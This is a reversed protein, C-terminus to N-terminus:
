HSIYRHWSTRDAIGHVIAHTYAHSTDRTFKTITKNNSNFSICFSFFAHSIISIHVSISRHIELMGCKMNTVNKVEYKYCEEGWIQLMGWRMNTVNDVEYKYCEEGWIQSMGWRMLTVNRVEYKYCKKSWIQLM